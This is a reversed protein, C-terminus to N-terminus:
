TPFLFVQLPATPVPQRTGCARLPAHGPCERTGTRARLPASVDPASARTGTRVRVDYVSVCLPDGKFKDTRGAQRCILHGEPTSATVVFTTGLHTVTSGCGIVRPM